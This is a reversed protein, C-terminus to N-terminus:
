PASVRFARAPPTKNYGGLGTDPPTADCGIDAAALTNGIRDQADWVHEIPVRYNNILFSFALVVGDRTTVYGSLASASSLTGTKARLVGAADGDEMRSELTGSGAAVAMSTVYEPRLKPRNHMYTLIKALQRPTMRNINHLGSANNLEYAGKPIGVEQYLFSEIARDAKDWTGPAGYTKAGITLAIQQAMFNNSHKNVRNVLEALRLSNQAALIPTQKPTKGTRVRGKIAVGSEIIIRRFIDGAFNPPNDIRRWYGRGEDDATINGSIHVRSRGKEPSVSVYLRTRGEKVTKATVSVQSYDSRPEIM